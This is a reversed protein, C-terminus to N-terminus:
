YEVEIEVEELMMNFTDKDCYLMGNDHYEREEEEDYEKSEFSASWGANSVHLWLGVYDGKADMVDIYEDTTISDVIEKFNDRTIM